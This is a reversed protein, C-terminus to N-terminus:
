APAPPAHIGRHSSAQWVGPGTGNEAPHARL